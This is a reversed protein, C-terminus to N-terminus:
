FLSVIIGILAGLVLAMLCIGGIGAGPGRKEAAAIYGRAYIARSAIFVVGIGAGWLPSVYMGFLWMAPVFVILAELTNQHVRHIREFIEPGTTAPAKVGHVGRARGVLAGFVIYEILSLLIVIYVPEM